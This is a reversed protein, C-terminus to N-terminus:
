TAPLKSFRARAEKWVKEEAPEFVASETSRSVVGRLEDLSHIEGLALAQILINGMATAEAPGAIVIRGTANAAFQNLLHNRSGGGVIHLRRVTRGTLDSIADLSAGYVLALSELIARSMEGRTRPVPQGTERCYAEVKGPMGGPKLFRPSDPHILSRLPEAESAETVLREYSLDPEDLIWERRCEQLIWLGAINKLFRVRRNYGLENTCNAELVQRSILPEELEVGLLSWTGSSLYAWDTGGTAPVAAVAAGTDHSCTAVVQGGEIGLEEGVEPSFPGLVTGSDVIEPFIRPPLGAKGILESSWTRTVPNLLQTTSALSLEAKPVGCFLYNLYDAINLFQSASEISRPDDALDAALQYLTNFPQFQIGTEKFIVDPGILERVSAFSRDTRSDRYHFPVGVMPQGERFLVYDVGWSDVSLSRIFHGETVAKTVGAKLEEFIRLVDWRLTGQVKVPGNPFRHAEKLEVKGDVIRGLMVRGSEAGLDCAAYWGTKVHTM